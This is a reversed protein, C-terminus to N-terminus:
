AGAPQDFPPAPIFAGTAKVLVDMTRNLILDLPQYRKQIAHLRVRIQLRPKGAAEFYDSRIVALSVFAVGFFTAVRFPAEAPRLATALAPILPLPM